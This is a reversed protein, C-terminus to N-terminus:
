NIKKLPTIKSTEFWDQIRTADDDEILDNISVSFKYKAALELINEKTKCNVLQERLALSHKAAHIFDKLDERSM